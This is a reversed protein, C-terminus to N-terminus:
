KRVKKSEKLIDMAVPFIRGEWLAYEKASPHLGDAAVLSADKGMSGSGENREPHCRWTGHPEDKGKGM